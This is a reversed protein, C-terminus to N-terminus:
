MVAVFHLYFFLEYARERVPRFSVVALGVFVLAAIIGFLESESSAREYSPHNYIADMRAV